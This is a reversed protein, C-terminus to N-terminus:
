REVELELSIEKGILGPNLSKIITLNATIFNPVARIITTAVRM